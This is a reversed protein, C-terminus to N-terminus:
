IRGGRGPVGDHPDADASHAADTQRTASADPVPPPTTVVTGCEPCRGSVNGSLNYGCQVCHGPRYCSRFLLKCLLLAAGLAAFSGLFGAKSHLPSVCIIWALTVGLIIPLCLRLRRYRLTLYLFPWVLLGAIGAVGSMVPVGLPDAFPGRGYAADTPPLSLTLVFVYAFAFVYACGESIILVATWHNRPRMEHDAEPVKPVARQRQRVPQLKPKAMRRRTGGDRHGKTGTDRLGHWGGM